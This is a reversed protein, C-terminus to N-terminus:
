SLVQEVPLALGRKLTGLAVRTRFRCVNPNEELL